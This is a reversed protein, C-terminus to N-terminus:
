GLGGTQALPTCEATIFLIRKNVPSPATEPPPTNKTKLAPAKKPKEAPKSLTIKIAKKKSAPAATQLKTGLDAAKQLSSKLKSSTKASAPLLVEPVPISSPLAGSKKLKKSSSSKAM